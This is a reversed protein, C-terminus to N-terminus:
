RWSGGEVGREIGDGRALKHYGVWFPLAAMVLPIPHPLIYPRGEDTTGLYIAMEGRDTMALRHQGDKALNISIRESRKDFLSIM